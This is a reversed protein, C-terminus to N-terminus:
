KRRTRPLRRTSSSARRERSPPHLRRSRYMAGAWGLGGVLFFDRQDFGLHMEWHDPMVQFHPAHFLQLDDIEDAHLALRVEEGFAAVKSLPVVVELRHLLGHHVVFGVVQRSQPDLVLHKLSGIAKGDTDIVKTGFPVLMESGGTAESGVDGAMKVAVCTRNFIPFAHNATCNARRLTPGNYDLYTFIAIAALTSRDRRKEPGYSRRELVGARFKVDPESM